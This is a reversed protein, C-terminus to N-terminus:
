QAKRFTVNIRCEGTLSHAGTAPAEVGHFALRAPGGWVAVDGHQLPIRRPRQQRVLGGFLFVAPQGLSVSVIPQDMDQENRDQHLSLRAPRRYRNILCSDPRFGPFGAAAGARQALSAFIAPMAPWPRGSEPDTPQYRYGHRDTVWGAEGCNTMAVSMVYGGPTEMHRFPAGREVAAVAALLAEAEKAAFRRLVVAGEAIAVVAARAGAPPLLLDGEAAGEIRSM